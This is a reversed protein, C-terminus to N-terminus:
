SFQKMDLLRRIAQLLHDPDIPKSLHLQFGAAMAQQYDYEAAYATLAIAPVQGGQKPSLQRIQKLLTYGDIRPMGIDSILVDPVTKLLITLTEKASSALIVTAGAEQLLTSVYERMDAEDDVALVCIGKLPEANAIMPPPAPEALVLADSQILPLCVTFTTGQGEGASEVSVTGGHLEVLHRVIALGLGLGGFTRTISSDAQRFYDFVHPLFDPHIGKGTDTVTLQAYPTPPSFPSSSHEATKGAQGSGMEGDSGAIRELKVEVRGGNPTFKVANSLLNWAIQQLRAADGTIQYLAPLPAFEIQIAKAEAALQVTEIAAEVVNVLDIPTMQLSMKGRLIRSVDLLDEILQTQLKANREITELARDTTVADFARTRLLRTWGLIPNLPSRLEHSLVALFEDKIRNATEAQQRAAQEQALLKEREAEARKRATLDVYFSVIETQEDYPENMFASGILVPVRSGDKCIYEKEFPTSVGRQRLEQGAAMDLPLYEAPTMDLWRIRGAKLDSREYGTMKLFYDNADVINGSFNGFAVGFINSEALRRFRQESTRLAQEAQKAESIDTHVGVWELLNGSEDFVPVARVSFYRYSGDAIRVRHESEFTSRTAVAETWQIRVRSRDEPHIMVLWGAGLYNPFSQGTLREWSPQAMEVEGHAETTWVAEASALALSRYRAESLKRDAVEQELLRNTLELEITRQIVRRELDDNLSELEAQATQLQATRSQVHQELEQNLRNIEAAARDREAEVRVRDTIDFTFALIQQIEGQEDLMPVYKIIMTFPDTQPLTFSCEISQMQRTEVTKLLTPLYAQTVEESWLDEDRKGLMEALTLDARRLGTENVYEFRREADYVVFVDPLSNVALRLREESQRLAAAAEKSVTIDTTIGNIRDPQGQENRVVYGRDRVWRVQGDLRCLRYEIDFQDISQQQYLAQDLEILRSRDDPHVCSLWLDSQQLFDQMPLGCLQEVSPTTYLLARTEIDRSWLVDQVSKLVANLQSQSEQLQAQIQKREAERHKAMTIDRMVGIMGSANGDSDKLVTVSSEVFLRDGKANFHLIEGRWYGQTILTQAARQRDGPHLWEYQVVEALSRGVVAEAPLGYLKAAGGNWYTIQEQRDVAVIADNVQSLLQLQFHLQQEYEQRGAELKKAATMDLFYAAIGTSSPYIHVSFWRDLSPYYEEYQAPKQSAIVRLAARYAKTRRLEPFIEWVSQGLLQQRPKGLLQEARANIYTYRWNRDIIIFGDTTLEFFQELPLQELPETEQNRGRNQDQDLNVQSYWIKKQLQSQRDSQRNQASNSQSLDEQSLDDQDPNGQELTNQYTSNQNINNQNTYCPKLWRFRDSLLMGVCAVTLHSTIQHSPPSGPNWFEDIFATLTREFVPDFAFPSYRDCLWTVAASPLVLSGFFQFQQALKWM